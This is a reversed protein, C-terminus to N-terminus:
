CTLRSRVVSCCDCCLVLIFIRIALTAYCVVGRVYHRQCLRLPERACEILAYSRGRYPAIYSIGLQLDTPSPLPLSFRRLRIHSRYYILSNLHRQNNRKLVLLVLVPCCYLLEIFNHFTVFAVRSVECVAHDPELHVTM